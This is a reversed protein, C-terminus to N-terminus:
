DEFGLFRNTEKLFFDRYGLPANLINGNKDFSINHAKVGNKVNELYILSVHDPPINGKRIEIGARNIMFDSHTEVLFSKEEAKVTEIFLSALAAQARPHLHVEPQQLLFRSDKPSFFLHGLIPLAQSIGYGTDILNSRVDKVRLQIEFPSDPAKGSRKVEIKDFLEASKGFQILKECLKKWGKRNRISLDMFAVPIDAGEPSYSPEKTFSTYHRLPKSRVPASNILLRSFVARRNDRWSIIAKKLLDKEKKKINKGEHFTERLIFFPNFSFFDPTQSLSIEHKFKESKDERSVLSYNCKKDRWKFSVEIDKTLVKINSVVPKATKDRSFCVNYKMEPAECELGLEFSQKQRGGAGRRAITDFPGMQYPDYNFDFVRRFPPNNDCFAHFCSLVTTKGTSNEGILFTLPRIEFVQEGAFCRVDKMIFRLKKAVPPKRGSSPSKKLAKGKSASKKSLAKVSPSKVKRLVPKKKTKKTKVAM